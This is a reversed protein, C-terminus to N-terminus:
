NWFMFFVSTFYMASYYAFLSIFGFPKPVNLKFYRNALVLDSVMFLVSGTAATVTAANFGFVCIFNIGLGGFLGIFVSYVITALENGDYNFKPSRTTYITYILTLVAIMVPWRVEFGTLQLYRFCFFVHALLFSGVGLTFPLKKLNNDIEGSVSLVADGVFCMIYGPLLMLYIANGSARWAMFGLLLFFLSTIVKLIRYHTERVKYMVAITALAFAAYIITTIIM